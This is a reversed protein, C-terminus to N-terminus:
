AATRVRRSALPFVWLLFSLSFGAVLIESPSFFGSVIATLAFGVPTLGLSGFFDLSIVRALKSEPVLEMLVTEWIGLGIAIFFGRVAVLALALDYWPLVAMAIVCLDNLAWSAYTIIVRHRRPNWQGFVFTGVVMGAAQVAFLLGYAGVGLGFHQEVLKPLLSQYPAMAVMLIFAALGITVWLWPVGAVYRFGSVIERLTGESPERELERPRALWLLAASFLFTIADFGFVVSPSTAGYLGAALAPGIIWSTNRSIGILANASALLPQEVVLPVMGGFAPYFFGDGLGVGIAFVILLTLNLHGTADTLALAAVVGCRSVDSVIMLARRSYRDALAGGILLTALMAMSEAMLVLALSSASGTLEVVRWGVAVLFAGNGILSVTQGGWLLRFDRSRFAHLARARGVPKSVAEVAALAIRLRM